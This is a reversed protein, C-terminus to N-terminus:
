LRKSALIATGFTRRLVDAQCIRYPTRHRHTSAWAWLRASSQSSAPQSASQARSLPTYTRLYCRMPSVVESGMMVSWISGERERSKGAARGQAPRAKGVVFGHGHGANGECAYGWQAIPLQGARWGVGRRLGRARWQPPLPAETGATHICLIYTRHGGEMWSTDLRRRSTGSALQLLTQLPCAPIPSCPLFPRPALPMIGNGGHVAHMALCAPFM